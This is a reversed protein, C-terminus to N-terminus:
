HKFGHSAVAGEVKVLSKYQLSPSPIFPGLGLSEWRKDISAIVDDTMTIVNPWERQFGDLEFTKMTGDIAMTHSGDTFFCDRMPDINNAVIWVITGWSLPLVDEDVYVVWQIGKLADNGSIQQHFARVAGKEKKSIGAMLIPIGLKLLDTRLSGPGKLEQAFAVPLVDGKEGEWKRTADIGLKSGVAFRSSSHDLVDVPGKTLLTDEFPDVNEKVVKLLEEPNHIDVDEDVVLLIKNFMMQGAGWLSNMVKAAQGPFTKHISVIVLNHFVGEVPMVMDKIEPLMSLRIPTLFIRETAKGIWADEQPPIGVITTPYVANKRHTICTVHFRPYYDALSYFGTHDGFPGELVLDESPDVYGEIIIDADSPVELDCSICKVLEVRKKRLFGALLYEDVNEPLPATACYTYTPDGGLAVAVPMRKGLRKYERYHTASNKHLHWHMGTTQKDLVQMRYMGVNRQGTEPHKTHVIPLTIFPGGDFPWCTLVPLVSLDPESLIVQCAGKGSIKAPMWSSVEKLTPLLALKSFFSERPAMVSGVMEMIEKGIDDLSQYGLAMCMRKESGMANILLPFRTGNNEFLLAKGTVKSIRDTIETIELHPSVHERVRILEANKELTQIFSILSNYPM